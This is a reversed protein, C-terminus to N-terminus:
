RFSGYLVFPAWYYPHKLAKKAQTTEGNLFSLQALRLLEAKSLKPNAKYLQYFKVMLRSSGEDSANWLTAIVSSAGLRQSLEALSDIERGNANSQLAATQCASLVILDVSEFLNPYKEMDSLPFITNDGLLLFSKQTDGPQFCFHSAIHVLSINKGKLSNILSPRDFRENLLVQGKVIAPGATTNLFVTSLEQTVFPLAGLREVCTINSDSSKGFGIGETWPKAERLFRKKEARTFNVNQYRQVLLQDRNEDRLAAVPIYRLNSDLSWLLVDPRYRELESELTSAKDELSTSKFIINYLAASPKEVLLGPNRLRELFDNIKTKLDEAKIPHSFAKIGDSTILLVHFKDKATVTYIAAHKKGTDKGLKCLAYKMDETDQTSGALSSAGPRCQSDPMDTLDLETKIRDKESVPQEFDTEIQKITNLFENYSRNDEDTLRALEKAEEESPTRDGIRKKFADIPQGINSIKELATEFVQNNAVERPTLVLNAKIRHLDPNYDFFEADRSLNIVQHAEALRGETILLAALATYSPVNSQHFIQRSEKPLINIDQRIEQLDIISKKGFLVAVRGKGLAEWAMRLNAMLTARRAKDGDKTHWKLAELFGKLALDFHGSRLALNAVNNFTISKQRTSGVTELLALAQKYTEFAKRIEGQGDYIGAMNHLIRAEGVKDKLLRYIDLLTKSEELATKYDKLQAHATIINNLIAAVLKVNTGEKALPLAEEYLPVAKEFQELDEYVAGIGFIAMAKGQSDNQLLTSAQGLAEFAKAYEGTYKYNVGLNLLAFGTWYDDKLERFVNAAEKYLEILKSFKASGGQKDVQIAEVLKEEAKIRLRDKETASDSLTAKIQYRGSKIRTEGTDGVILVHSGDKDSIYTLAERNYGDGVNRIQIVKKDDTRAFIFFIDAGREIIELHLVQGAKLKITYPHVGSEREVMEGIPLPREGIDPKDQSFATLAALLVVVHALLIRRCFSVLVKALTSGSIEAQSFNAHSQEQADHLYNM